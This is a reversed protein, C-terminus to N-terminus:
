ERRQRPRVRSGVKLMAASVRREDIYCRYLPTTIWGVHKLQRTEPDRRICLIHHFMSESRQTLAEDIGWGKSQVGANCARDGKGDDTASFSKEGRPTMTRRDTASRRRRARQTTTPGVTTIQQSLARGRYIYLPSPAPHRMLAHHPPTAAARTSVRQHSLM